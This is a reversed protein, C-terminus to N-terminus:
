PKIEPKTEVDVDIGTKKKVEIKFLRIIIDYFSTALAFSIFFKMVPVARVQDTHTANNLEYKYVWIYIASFVLSLAFTKITADYRADKKYWCFPSLFRQQAFGAGIVLIFIFFDVYKTDLWNLFNDM